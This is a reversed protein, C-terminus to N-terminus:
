VKMTKEKGNNDPLKQHLDHYQKRKLNDSNNQNLKDLYAGNQFTLMPAYYSLANEKMLFNEEFTIGKEIATEILNFYLQFIEKDKQFVIKTKKNFKDQYYFNFKDMIIQSVEKEELKFVEYFSIIKSHLKNDECYIFDLFLLKLEEKSFISYENALQIYHLIKCPETDSSQIRSLINEITIKKENM